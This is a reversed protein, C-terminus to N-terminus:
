RILGIRTLTLTLTIYSEGVIVKYLGIRTLTLTLTIYSEGVIVKYPWSIAATYNLDHGHPEFPNLSPGTLSLDRNVAISLPLSDRTPSGTILSSWVNMGDYVPPTASPSSLSPAGGNALQILTPMVDTVHMLGSRKTGRAEVPVAGGFLFSVVRVGGEHVTTKGGRLPWNSSASAPFDDDWNTMGGNDSVV